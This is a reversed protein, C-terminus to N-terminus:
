VLRLLMLVAIVVLVAGVNVAWRKASMRVRPPENKYILPWDM